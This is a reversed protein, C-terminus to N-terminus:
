QSEGVAYAGDKPLGSRYGAEITRFDTSIEARGVISNLVSAIAKATGERQVRGEAEGKINEWGKTASFFLDVAGKATAPKWFHPRDVGQGLNMVPESAGTADGRLWVTVFKRGGYTPVSVKLIGAFFMTDDRDYLRHVEVNLLSPDVLKRKIAAVVKKLLDQLPKPADNPSAWAASKLLPLLHPRLAPNAHALRIVESRLSSM